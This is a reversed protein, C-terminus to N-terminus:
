IEKWRKVKFSGQSDWFQKIYLRPLFTIQGIVVITFKYCMESHSKHLSYLQVYSFGGIFNYNLKEATVNYNAITTFWVTVSVVKLRVSAQILDLEGLWTPWTQSSLSVRECWESRCTCRKGDSGISYLVWILWVWIKVLSKFLLFCFNEWWDCM